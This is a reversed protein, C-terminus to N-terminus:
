KTLWGYYKLTLERRHALGNIGGNVRKTVAIIAADNVAKCLPWLNNKDFFFKASDFAYKTAVLSPTLLINPDTMYVSFEKYNNKGTTQLAGMGRYRFGDGSAEDGNGMRNAYVKNAIKEPKREYGITSSLSPFYKNFTSVLGAAGYNLNEEFTKFEGTEHACQGFFHAAASDSLSFFEQAAKLTGPGFKGDLEVGIREQLAKLSM